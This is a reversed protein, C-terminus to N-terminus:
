QVAVSAKLEEIEDTTMEGATYVTIEGDTIQQQLDAVYTRVEEPVMEEYHADEVLGVGNDAFGLSETTGYALQGEMDLKIARYLADGVNKLASTPISDAYDPLLAAQDSDVGFALKGTESAAEILGLGANGAVNFGIDAGANYM